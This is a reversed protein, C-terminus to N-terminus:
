NILEYNFLVSGWPGDNYDITYNGPQIKISTFLDNNLQYRFPNNLFYPEEVEFVQNGAEDVPMPKLFTFKLKNDARTITAGMRRNILVGNSLILVTGDQCTIIGSRGCRFGIGRQCNSRRTALQWSVSLAVTPGHGNQACIDAEAEDAGDEGGDDVALAVSSLLNANPQKSIEKRCSLITLCLFATFLITTDQILRNNKKM